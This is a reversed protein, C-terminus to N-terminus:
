DKGYLQQKAIISQIRLGEDLIKQTEEDDCMVHNDLELKERFTKLNAYWGKGDELTVNEDIIFRALSFDPFLQSIRVLEQCIQKYISGKKSM